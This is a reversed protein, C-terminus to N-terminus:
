DKENQPEEEGLIYEVKNSLKEIETRLDNVDSKREDSESTLKNNLELIEKRIGNLFVVKPIAVWKGNQFIIVSDESLKSYNVEVLTKKM